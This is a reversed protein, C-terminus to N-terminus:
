MEPQRPMLMSIKAQELMGIVSHIGGCQGFGFVGIRNQEDLLIVLAKDVPNEEQKELDDAVRRLARPIDNLDRPFDVLNLDADNKVTVTTDDGSVNTEESVTAEEISEIIQDTM